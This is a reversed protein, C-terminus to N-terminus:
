LRLGIGFTINLSQFDQKGTGMVTSSSVQMGGLSGPNKVTMFTSQIDELKIKTTGTWGANVFLFTKKNMSYNMGGSFSYAFGIGHSSTQTFTAILTDTESKGEFKPMSVYQAGFQMRSYFDIKSNDPETSMQIGAMVNASLWTNKEFNWHEYKVVPMVVPSSVGGGFYIFPSGFIADNFAEELKNTKVPNRQGSASVILGFNKSFPLHYNINLAQGIGAFGAGNDSLDNSGFDGLPFSPGIGISLSQKANKNQSFSFL